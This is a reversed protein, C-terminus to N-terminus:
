AVFSALRQRAADILQQGEDLCNKPARNVLKRGVRKALRSNPFHFWAADKWPDAVPGLAALVKTVIPLPKLDEGFQWAAFYERGDISVGFIKGRRKWDATPSRPKGFQRRLQEASYWQTEDAIRKMTRRRAFHEEILETSPAAIFVAAVAVAAAREILQQGGQKMVSQLAKSVSEGLRSVAAADFGAPLPIVLQASCSTKAQRASRELTAM